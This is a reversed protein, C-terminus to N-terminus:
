VVKRLLATVARLQHRVDHTAVSPVVDIWGQRFEVLHRRHSIRASNFGDVAAERANLSLIIKFMEQRELSDVPWCPQQRSISSLWHASTCGSRPSVLIAATRLQLSCPQRRRHLLAFSLLAIVFCLTPVRSSHS